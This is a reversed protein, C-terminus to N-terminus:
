YTRITLYILEAAKDRQLVSQKRKDIVSVISFM